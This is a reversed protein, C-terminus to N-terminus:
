GAVLELGTADANVDFGVTDGDAIGGGLMRRALADEPVRGPPPVPTTGM